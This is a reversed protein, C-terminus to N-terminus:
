GQTQPTLRGELRRLEAVIEDKDTPFLNLPEVVANFWNNATAFDDCGRITEIAWKVFADPDANHDPGGPVPTPATIEGTVANIVEIRKRTPGNQQLDVLKEQYRLRLINQWDSPIVSIRDRAQEGWTKLTEYDSTSDIESQMKSYIDRADKKPLTTKSSAVTPAEAQEMEESTYLGSLEHPFAKRLALSEACKSVMVDPMKAWLSIPKGDRKSAYADFRAVGWCPEKFDSRLVGIRAAAPPNSDTWVDLWKGDPGCWFPGIQGVYKGSREAILRLGDISTQISRVTVWQDGRKERREISYIQRALPDLGTRECQYMFLRLEDDTANKCITRKILDLKDPTFTIIDSSKQVPVINNM